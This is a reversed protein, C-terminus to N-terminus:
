DDQYRRSGRDSQPRPMIEQADPLWLDSSTKSQRGDTGPLHQARHRTRSTLTAGPAISNRTCKADLSGRQDRRIDISPNARESTRAGHWSIETRSRTAIASLAPTIPGARPLRCCRDKQSKGTGSHAVNVLDEIEQLDLELGPTQFVRARSGDAVVVWTIAAM